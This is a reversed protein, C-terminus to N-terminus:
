PKPRPLRSLYRRVRSVVLRIGFDIGAISEAAPGGPKRNAISEWEDLLANLQGRSRAKREAITRRGTEIGFVVGHAWLGRGTEVRKATKRKWMRQLAQLDALLHNWDDKGRRLGM